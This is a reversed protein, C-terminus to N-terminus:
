RVSSSSPRTTSTLVHILDTPDDTSVVYVNNTNMPDPLVWPIHTGALISINKYLRRERTQINLGVDAAGPAYAMSMQPYSM